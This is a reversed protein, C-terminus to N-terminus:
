LIGYYRLVVMTFILNGLITFSTIARNGGHPDNGTAVRTLLSALILMASVVLFPSRELDGKGFMAGDVSRDNSSRM